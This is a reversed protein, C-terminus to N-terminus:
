DRRDLGVWRALGCGVLCCVAAVGMSVLVLSAYHVVKGPPLRAVTTFVLAPMALYVVYANLHSPAEESLAGVRRAAYGLGILALLELFARLGEM